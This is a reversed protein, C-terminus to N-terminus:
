ITDAAYNAYLDSTPYNALVAVQLLNMGMAYNTVDM